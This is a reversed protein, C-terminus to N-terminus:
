DLIGSGPNCAAAVTAAYSVDPRIEDLNWTAKFFAFQQHCIRQDRLGGLNFRIGRTIQPTVPKNTIRNYVYKATNKFKAMVENWGFAGPLFGGAQARAWATPVVELTYSPKQIGNIKVNRLTWYANKILDFGLYADAEM